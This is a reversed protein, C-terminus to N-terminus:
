PTFIQNGTGATNVITWTHGYVNVLKYIKEMATTPTSSDQYVGSPRTNIGTATSNTYGMTISMQRFQTNGASTSANAVVFDYWAGVHADVRSQTRYTGTLEVIKLLICNVVGTPVTTPFSANNSPGYGLRNIQTGAKFGTGWSTLSSSGLTIYILQLANYIADPVTTFTNYQFFVNRLTPIDKLNNAFSNNGLSSSVMNITELGKINHIRDMGNVTNVASGDFVSALTLSKLESNILWLPITTFRELFCGYLIFSNSRLGRLATPFTEWRRLTDASRIYIGNTFNYAGLSRPFDGYFGVYDLKMYTTSSPYKFSIKITRKILYDVNYTDKYEAPVDQFYHLPTAEYKFVGSANPQYTHIGTGDSFDIYMENNSNSSIVEFIVNTANSTGASQVQLDPFSTGSVELHITSLDPYKWLIQGSRGINGFFKVIDM